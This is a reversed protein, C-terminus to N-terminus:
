CSSRIAARALVLVLVRVSCSDGKSAIGTDQSRDAYNHAGKHEREAYKEAHERSSRPPPLASHTEVTWKM